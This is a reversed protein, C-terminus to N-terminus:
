GELQAPLQTHTHAPLQTHLTPPHEPLQLSTLFPPPTGDMPLTPTPGINRLPLIPLGVLYVPIVALGPTM